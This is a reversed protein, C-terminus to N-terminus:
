EGRLASGLRKRLEKELPGCFISGKRNFSEKAMAISQKVERCCSKVNRRSYREAALEKKALPGALKKEEEKDAGANNKRRGSM